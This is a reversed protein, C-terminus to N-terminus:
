RSAFLRYPDTRNPWQASLQGRTQRDPLAENEPRTFIAQRLGDATAWSSDHNTGVPPCRLRRGARRTLWHSILGIDTLCTEIELLRKAGIRDISAIQEKHYLDAVDGVTPHPGVATSSCERRLSNYVGTSLLPQLCALPCDRTHAHM